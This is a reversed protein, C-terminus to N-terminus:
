FSLGVESGRLPVLRTCHFKGHARAQVVKDSKRGILKNVAALLRRFESTGGGAGCFDAAATPRDAESFSDIDESNHTANASDHTGDSSM